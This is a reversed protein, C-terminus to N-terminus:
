IARLADDKPVSRTTEASRNIIGRLPKLQILGPYIKVAALLPSDISENEIGSSNNPSVTALWSRM